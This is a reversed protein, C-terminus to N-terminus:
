KPVVWDRDEMWKYAWQRFKIRNESNQPETEDWLCQLIFGGQGDHFEISLMNGDKDYVDTPIAKM